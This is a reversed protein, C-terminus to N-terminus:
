TTYWVRTAGYALAAVHHACAPKMRGANPEAREVSIFPTPPTTFKSTILLGSM